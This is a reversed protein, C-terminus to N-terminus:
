EVSYVANGEGDNTVNIKYYLVPEHNGSPGKVESLVKTRSYTLGNGLYLTIQAEEPTSGSYYNAGITFLGEAINDCSVFYNEPGQGNTDDLDLDGYDGIKKSFYVHKGSPEFVHLDVDPNNGWQLTARIAGEGARRTPYVLNKALKTIGADIVGWSPLNTRMYSDVFSHNKIDERPDPDDTPDLNTLDNDINSPLVDEILRLADIVRDDHATVYDEHNGVRRSAPTAVGFYGISDAYEPTDTIVSDIAKTTFLNGQSHPLIIVRHGAALADNYYTAHRDNVMSRDQLADVQAEQLIQAFEEIKEESLYGFLFYKDLYQQIFESSLGNRLMIYLAYGNGKGGEDLIKQQFVQVVDKPTGQTDNYATDFIYTHGELSSLKTKFREKVLRMSIDAQTPSNDVGNAFYVKTTPTDNDELSCGNLEAHSYGPLAMAIGVALVKLNSKM